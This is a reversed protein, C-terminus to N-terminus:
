YKINDKIYVLTRISHQMSTTKIELGFGIIKILEINDDPKVEAEQICLIDIENQM